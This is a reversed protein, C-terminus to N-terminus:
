QGRRGRWRNEVHRAEKIRLEPKTGIVGTADTL